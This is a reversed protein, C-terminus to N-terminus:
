RVSLRIIIGLCGLLVALITGIAWLRLSDLKDGLREEMRDMRQLLFFFEQSVLGRPPENTAATEKLTAEEPMISM